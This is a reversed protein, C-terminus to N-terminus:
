MGPTNHWSRPIQATNVFQQWIKKAGFKAMGFGAHGGRGGPIMRPAIRGSLRVMQAPNDQCCVRRFCKGQIHFGRFLGGGGGLGLCACPPCPFVLGGRRLCPEVLSDSSGQGSGGFGVVVAGCEHKLACFWLVGGVAQRVADLACEVTSLLCCALSQLAGSVHLLERGFVGGSFPCM